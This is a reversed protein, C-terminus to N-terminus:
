FLETLVRAIQAMYNFTARCMDLELSKFNTGQVMYLGSDTKISLEKLNCDSELTLLIDAIGPYKLLRLVADRHDYTIIFRRDLKKDDISMGRAEFLFIHAFFSFFGQGIRPILNIKAQEQSEREPSPNTQVVYTTSFPWTAMFAEMQAPFGDVTGKISVAVRDSADVPEGDILGAVARQQAEFEM